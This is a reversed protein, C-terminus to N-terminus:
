ETPAWAISRSTPSFVTTHEAVDASVVANPGVRVNDGLRVNGMIIAGAGLDVKNGLVPGHEPGWTEELTTGITVGQRITCDDGITCYQHIVIGGQHAILLRRGIRADPYLEIGYVNRIFVHIFKALWLVPRRRGSGDLAWRGLRYMVMAQFGPRLVSRQNTWRDEKILAWLSPQEAAYNDEVATMPKIHDKTM